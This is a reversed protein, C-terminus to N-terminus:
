RDSGDQRRDWREGLSDMFGGSNRRSRKAPRSAPGKAHAKGRSRRPTIATLVGAFMIAFGLVGVLPQQVIVGTVLTAIGLVAILIGVVLSTYNPRGGSRAGMTAVFDADNHYLSREMEDLLRQEQESLPMENGREGKM